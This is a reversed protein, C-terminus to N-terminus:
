RFAALDDGHVKIWTRINKHLESDNKPEGMMELTKNVDDWKQSLISLQRKKRDRFRAFAEEETSHAWRTGKAKYGHLLKHDERRAREEMPLKKRVLGICTHWREVWVTHYGTASDPNKSAVKVVRHANLTVGVGYGEVRLMYENGYKDKM